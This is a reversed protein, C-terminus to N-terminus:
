APAPAEGRVAGALGSPSAPILSGDDDLMWWGDWLRVPVERPNDVAAVLYGMLYSTARNREVREHCLFHLYLGNEPSALSEDSTGGM